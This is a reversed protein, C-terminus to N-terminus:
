RPAPSPSMAELCFRKTQWVEPASVKRKKPNDAECPILEELSGALDQQFRLSASPMPKTEQNIKEMEDLYANAARIARSDFSLRTQIPNEPKFLLDFGEIKCSLIWHPIEGELVTHKSVASDFVRLSPSCGEFSIKGISTILALGPVYCEELRPFRSWDMMQQIRGYEASRLYDPATVQFSAFVQLTVLSVPFTALLAIYWAETAVLSLRTLTSPFNSASIWRDLSKYLASPSLFPAHHYALDDQPDTPSTSLDLTHVGEPLYWRGLNGSLQFSHHHVFPFSRLLHESIDQLCIFGSWAHHALIGRWRPDTATYGSRFINHGHESQSIRHPPSTVQLPQPLADWFKGSFLICPPGTLSLHPRELTFSPLPCYSSERNTEVQHSVPPDYPLLVVKRLNKAHDPLRMLSEDQENCTTCVLLSLRSGNAVPISLSLPCADWVVEEISPPLKQLLDPVKLSSNTVTLSTLRILSSLWALHRDQRNRSYPDTDTPGWRDLHLKTLSTTCSPVSSLLHDWPVRHLAFNQAFTHLQEQGHNVRESPRLELLQIEDIFSDVEMSYSEDLSTRQTPDDITNPWLYLREEEDLWHYLLSKTINRGESPLSLPGFARMATISPPFSSLWSWNPLRWNGSLLKERLAECKLSSRRSGAGSISFEPSIRRRSFVGSVLDMLNLQIHQNLDLMTTSNPIQTIWTALGNRQELAECARTTDTPPSSLKLFHVSPPPGRPAEKPNLSYNSGHSRPKLCSRLLASLDLESYVFESGRVNGTDMHALPPSFTNLLEVEINTLSSPLFPVASPLLAANQGKLILTQLTSNCPLTREGMTRADMKFSYVMAPDQHVPHAALQHSAHAPVRSSSQMGRPTARTAQHPLSPTFGILRESVVKLTKLRAPLSRYDFFIPANSFSMEGLTPNVMGLGTRGEQTAPLLQCQILALHTLSPPFTTSYQFLAVRKLEVRNVLRFADSVAIETIFEGANACDGTIHISRLHPVSSVSLWFRNKSKVTLRQLRPADRITWTIPNVGTTPTSCGLKLSILRSAPGFKSFKLCHNSANNQSDISDSESSRPSSTTVTISLKKLNPHETVLTDVLAPFQWGISATQVNKLRLVVLTRPLFGGLFTSLPWGTLTLSYLHASLLSLATPGFNTEEPAAGNIPNYFGTISSEVTAHIHLAFKASAAALEFGHVDLPFNGDFIDIRKAKLHRLVGFARPFYTEECTSVSILDLLSSRLSKELRCSGSCLLAGLSDSPLWSYIHRLAVFSLADITTTLPAELEM